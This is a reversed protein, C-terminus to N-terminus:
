NVNKDWSAIRTEGTEVMTVYILCMMKLLTSYGIQLSTIKLGKEVHFAKPSPTM